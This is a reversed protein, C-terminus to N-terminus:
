LGVLFYHAVALLGLMIIGTKYEAHESNDPTANLIAHAILKSKTTTM